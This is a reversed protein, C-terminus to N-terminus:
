RRGQRVAGPRPERRARTSYGGRLAVRDALQQRRRLAVVTAVMLATAGLLGIPGPDRASMSLSAEQTALQFEDEPAVALGTMPNVNPNGQAQPLNQTVVNSQVQPQAVPQAPPAPPLAPDPIPLLGGLAHEVPAPILPPPKVVGPPVVDVVTAASAPFYTANGLFRARVPVTGTPVPTALSPQWPVCFVGTDSTLASGLPQGAADVRVLQRGIPTGRSTLTLTACLTATDTTLMRRPAHVTLSALLPCYGDPVRYASVSDLDADRIWLASLPYFTATDCAMADNEQLSESVVRHTYSGQEQCQADLRVVSRDDEQLTYGGGDGTAVFGAIQGGSTGTDRCTAQMVNAKPGTRAFVYLTNKMEPIGVIADRGADYTLSTTPPSTFLHTARGSRLSYAYTDSSTNVDLEDRRSDYTMSRVHKLHTDISPLVAGDVARLRNVVGSGRGDAYYLDVGDFAISQSSSNGDLGPTSYIALQQLPQLLPPLGNGGPGRPGTRDREGVDLLRLRYTGVGANPVFGCDVLFTPPDGRDTTLDAADCDRPLGTVLPALSAGGDRSVLVRGGVTTVLTAATAGFRVATADGTVLRRWTTGADDSRYVGTATAAAIATGGADRAATSLSRVDEGTLGAPLVSLGGDTSTWVGGAPSASGNGTGVAALASSGAYLRQRDSPDAALAGAALASVAPLPVFTHASDTSRYAGVPAGTADRLAVYVTTHDDTASVAALRVDTGFVAPVPITAPAFRAGGDDSVLLPSSTGTFARTALLRGGLGEGEVQTIRQAGGDPADVPRWSVGGDESHRLAGPGNGGGSVAYTAACPKTDAQGLRSGAPAAAAPPVAHWVGSQEYATLCPMDATARPVAGVAVLLAASALPRAFSTV